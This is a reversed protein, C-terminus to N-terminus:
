NRCIQRLGLGILDTTKWESNNSLILLIERAHIDRVQAIVHEAKEHDLTELLDKILVFDFMNHESLQDLTKESLHIPDKNVLVQDINEGLVLISKSGDSLKKILDSLQDSM